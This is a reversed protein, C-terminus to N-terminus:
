RGRRLYYMAALADRSPPAPGMQEPDRFRPTPPGEPAVSTPAMSFLDQEQPPMPQAGGEMRRAQLLAYLQALPGM